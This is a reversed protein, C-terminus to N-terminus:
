PNIPISEQGQYMKEKNLKLDQFKQLHYKEAVHVKSNLGINNEELMLQWLAIINVQDQYKEKLQILIKM